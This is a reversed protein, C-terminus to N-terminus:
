SQAIFKKESWVVTYEIEIMFVALGPDNTSVADAWIQFYAKETPNASTTGQYNDQGVPNKVGFFKNTSYGLTISVPKGSRNARAGALNFKSMPQGGELIHTSTLYSFTSDDDLFVGFTAPTQESSSNPLYTIKIQSGLVTYHDYILGMQDFYLPQHGTGTIDTDYMGNASYTHNAIGGVGPDLTIEDVYKHRIKMTKPFGLPLRPHHSRSRLSLMLSRRDERSQRLATFRKVRNKNFRPRGRRPPM